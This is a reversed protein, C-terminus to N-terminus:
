EVRSARRRRGSASTKVSDMMLSRLSPGFRQRLKRLARLETEKTRQRSLGLSRAIVPIQTGDFYKMQIVRTERSSLSAIAAAVQVQMEDASFEAEADCSAILAEPIDVLDSRRTGNGDSVNDDLSITDPRAWVLLQNVEVESVGLVRSLDGVTPTLGGRALRGFTKMLRLVRKYTYDPIHTAWRQGKLLDYMKFRAQQQAYTAFSCRHGSTFKRGAEVLGLEGAGVLDDVDVFRKNRQHLIRAMTKIQPIQDVIASLQISM